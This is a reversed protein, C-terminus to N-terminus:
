SVISLMKKATYAVGDFFSKRPKQLFSIIRDSTSDENLLFIQDSFENMVFLNSKATDGDDFALIPLGHELMAATAGSKGLVDYPSTSIGLDCNQFEKSIESESCEGMESIIFGNDRSIKKIKKLGEFERQRGMLKLHTTKDLSNSIKKLKKALLEYPFKAYYTGFFAVELEDPKSNKENQFYPINGFLYLYKVNIGARKLRDMAASNSCTIVSPKSAHIFNLIERKQLWGIIREKCTANPYAGIWIEHFNIHLKKDRLLKALAIIPKKSFGFTSFSYPAFQISVFDAKELSNFNKSLGALHCISKIETKIDIKESLLKVYDSIGCKHPRYQGLIFIIKM